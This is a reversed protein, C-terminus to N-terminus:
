ARRDMFYAAAFLFAAGRVLVLLVTLLYHWVAADVISINFFPGFRNAEGFPLLVVNIWSLASMALVAIVVAVLKRMPVNRLITNSIASGFAMVALLSAYGVPIIVVFGIVYVRSERWFELIDFGSESGVAMIILFLLSVGISFGDLVVTPTFYGLLKKWAPVPTLAMLYNNPSKFISKWTSDSAVACVIIMGIFAFSSFVMGLISEWAMYESGRLSLAILFALNGLVVVAFATLRLGLRNRMSFSMQNFM